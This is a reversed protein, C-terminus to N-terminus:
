LEEAAFATQSGLVNRFGWVALGIVIAAVTVTRWAYWRTLDATLPTNLLATAVIAFVSCGLLGHRNLIVVTSIAMVGALLLPGLSGRMAYPQLLLISWSTIAVFTLILLGWAARDHRVILRMLLLIALAFWAIYTGAFSTLRDALLTALSPAFSALQSQGWPVALPLELWTTAAVALGPIIAGFWLAQTTGALVARGVLPDRWRGELLRTWSILLHPWRRRVYPELGMYYLWSLTAVSFALGFSYFIAVLTQMPRATWHRNLALIAAETGLMALAIRAAGKRDGRGLRANRWALGALVVLTAVFVVVMLSDLVRDLWDRRYPGVPIPQLSAPLVHFGTM